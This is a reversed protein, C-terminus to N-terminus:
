GGDDLALSGSHGWFTSSNERRCTLLDSLVLFVDVFEFGLALAAGDDTAVVRLQFLHVVPQNQHFSCGCSHLCLVLLVSPSTSAFQHTLSPQSRSAKKKLGRDCTSGPRHLRDVILLTRSFVLFTGRRAVGRNMM